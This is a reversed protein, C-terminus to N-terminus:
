FIFPDITSIPRIITYLSNLSTIQHNTSDINEPKHHKKGLHIRGADQIITDHNSYTSMSGRSQSMERFSTLLNKTQLLEFGNVRLTRCIMSAVLGNMYSM